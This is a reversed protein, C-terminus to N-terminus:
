NRSLERPSVGLSLLKGNLSLLVKAALLSQIASDIKGMPVESEQRVNLQHTLAARTQPREAVHSGALDPLVVM